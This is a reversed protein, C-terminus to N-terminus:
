NQPDRDIGAWLVADRRPNHPSFEKEATRLGKDRLAELVACFARDYFIEVLTATMRVDVVAQVLTYPVSYYSGLVEIHYDIHVPHVKSKHPLNDRLHSNITRLPIQPGSPSSSRM